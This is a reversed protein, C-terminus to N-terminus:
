LPNCLRQKANPINLMKRYKQITRRAVQFGMKNILEALKQDSYPSERNENKIITKLHTLITNESYANGSKGPFFSKLPYISNGFELYKHSICRSITSEHLQLTDAADKMMLPQINGYNKFFSYQNQIIYESLRILTNNRLTVSEILRKAEKQLPKIYQQLDKNNVYQTNLRIQTTQTTKIIFEGDIMEIKIDPHIYHTKNAFSSGPKPNCETIIKLAENIEVQTCRTQQQISKFSGDLLERYHNNIIAFSLSNEYGKTKLQTLLSEKISTCFCGVPEFTNLLEITKNIEQTTKNTINSIEEKSLTLFGNDDISYVLFEGLDIDISEPYTHLQWLFNQELTEEQIQYNILLDYDIQKKEQYPSDDIIDIAPNSEVAKQLTNELEEVNMQLIRLSMQQMQSLRQKQNQTQNQYKNLKLEM